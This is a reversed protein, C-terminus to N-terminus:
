PADTLPLAEGPDLVNEVYYWDDPVTKFPGDGQRVRLALDRGGGGQFYLV